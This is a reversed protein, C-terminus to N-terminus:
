LTITAHYSSLVRTVQTARIYIYVRLSLMLVTQPSVSSDPGSQLALFDSTLYNCMRDRYDLRERHKYGSHSPGLYKTPFFSSLNGCQVFCSRSAILGYLLRGCSCICTEKVPSDVWRVQFHSFILKQSM